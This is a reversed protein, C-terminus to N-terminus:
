MQQIDAEIKRENGTFSDNQGGAPEVRSTM